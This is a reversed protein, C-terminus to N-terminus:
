GREQDGRPGSRGSVGLAAYFRERGAAAGFCAAGVKLARGALEHQRAPDTVLGSLAAALGAPGEQDVVEAVPAHERAWRVASAYPPGYILLPLGAATYDALKSPFSVVMNDRSAAAFAMPVFLVDSEARLGRIMEDYPVLGRFTFSPSIALLERQEREGFPGFVVVRANVRALAAALDKLGAAIDPGSNGGYGIVIERDAIAPAPKVEFVPCGSSRFPYLVDGATGYRRQYEEAMFPSVCLRSGAQRYIRAFRRELWGQVSRAVGSLRPWDDHVILHLPRDLRHALAAALLWGYGHCVTVVATPRFEGLQALASPVRRAATLSLWASYTAHFRSNLWRRRGIPLELYSVGPLRREPRSPLGCEMVRLRDGPYHELMRYLLASGHHSAEVAVDGVYLLNPLDGTTVGYSPDM